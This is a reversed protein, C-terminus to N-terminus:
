FKIDLEETVLNDGSYYEFYWTGNKKFVTGSTDDVKALYIDPMSTKVIKM